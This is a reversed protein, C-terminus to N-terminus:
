NALQQGPMNYVPISIDAKTDIVYVISTTPNFPNPYNGKLEFRSPISAENGTGVVGEAWAISALLPNVLMTPLPGAVYQGPYNTDLWDNYYPAGVWFYDPATNLAEVDFSMFVSKGGNAAQGYIAVPFTTTDPNAQDASDLVGPYAKLAVTYGDVPDVSDLWNTGGTEYSPDYNLYLSSDSLFTALAGGIADGTVATLRSIAADDGSGSYNIDGEFSDIGLVSRAVNTGAPVVGTSGYRIYLWEDASVIYTKGGGWWAIIADDSNNDPGKGGMEIVLDYHVLLEDSLGGFASEWVDYSATWDLYDEIGAVDQNNFVLPLGATPEFITYFYTVTSTTNGNVDVATLSWYIDTGIAQGPITGGWVGDEATGSTMTLSITKVTATLSDIQYSFTASAVGATGGSPNTETIEAEFARDATSLTTTLPSLDEIIPPMDGTLEVAYAFRWNYQRIYWGSEGGTGGCDPINYFKLGVHPYIADAVGSLLGIRSADVLPDGAGTELYTVVVAIYEDTAFTAGGDQTFDIWYLGTAPDTGGPNTIVADIFGSPLVKTGMLPQNNAVVTDSDCVGYTFGNWLNDSVYSTDPYHTTDNDATHAYGVWGGGDMVSSPYTTGDTLYPYGGTGPRWVEVKLSPTFGDTNWGYVDVGVGYMILDTPAKYVEMMVDGPFFGFNVTGGIGWDLTDVTGRSNNNRFIRRVPEGLPIAENDASYATIGAQATINLHPLAKKGAQRVANDAGPQIAHLSLVLIFSLGFAIIKKNM